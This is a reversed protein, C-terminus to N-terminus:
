LDAARLYLDKLALERLQSYTKIPISAKTQRPRQKKSNGFERLKEASGNVDFNEVNGKRLLSLNNLFYDDKPKKKLSLKSAADDGGGIQYNNRELVTEANEAAELLSLDGTNEHRERLDEAIRLAYRAVHETVKQDLFNLKWPLSETDPRSIQSKSQLNFNVGLQKFINDVKHTVSTLVKSAKAM